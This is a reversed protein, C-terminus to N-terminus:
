FEFGYYKESNENTQKKAELGKQYETWYDEALGYPADGLAEALVLQSYVFECWSESYTEPSIEFDSMDIMIDDCNGCDIFALWNEATLDTREFVVEAKSMNLKEGFKGRTNKRLYNAIM